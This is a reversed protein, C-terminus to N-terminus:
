VTLLCVSLIDFAVLSFMWHVAILAKMPVTSFAGKTPLHWLKVTGDRSGTAFHRGDPAWSITWIIRQHAKVKGLLEYLAEGAVWAGRSKFAM